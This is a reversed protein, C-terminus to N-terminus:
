DSGLAFSQVVVTNDTQIFPKPIQHKPRKNIEFDPHQLLDTSISQVQWEIDSEHTLNLMLTINKKNNFYYRLFRKGAKIELPKELIARRGDINMANITIDKKSYLEMIDTNNNAVITMTIKSNDSRFLPKEVSINLPKLLIPEEAMTLNIIPKRYYKSFEAKQQNNSTETFLADEWGSQTHDYNYFYGRKKNIDYLYSLSTPHPNELTFNPNNQMYYILFTIPILLTIMPHYTKKVPGFVPLYLSLAWLLIVATMPLATIGMAIPLNILLTGVLVFSLSALIPALQEAWAPRNIQFFLLIISLCLPLLMIGSGPLFYVMPVLAIFSLSIHVISNTLHNNRSLVAIAIVAAGILATAMITHGQYPFGHLIDKFEPYLTHLVWLLASCWAYVMLAVVAFSINATFLHKFQLQNKRKAVVTQWIFVSGFLTILLWNLWTPYSIIGVAPLSFYVLSDNSQLHSLDAQSFYKLLAQVQITQHALTNLSLNDLNDRHTHYNFHNDIFALNYGNIHGNQNFPTLDTDNPLMKYIEYTLSTTVPMPVAAAKFADIMARNGGVTEPWMMSPGASGRAELNIILGIDHNQLQENIFAHAGLLGIEEADTFLVILDNRPQGQNKLFANVTELIVAVGTADDGAGVASFKASDYHALLLLDKSEPQTGDYKAIINLIPAATRNKPNFAVSRQKSVKFGLENLQKILYRQVDDHYYDGVARPGQTIYDIHETINELFVGQYFLDPPTNSPYSLQYGGWCILTFLVIYFVNRLM